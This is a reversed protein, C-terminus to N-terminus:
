ALAKLLEGWLAEEAAANAAADAADTDESGGSAAAVKAATAKAAVGARDRASTFADGYSAALGRAAGANALSVLCKLATERLDVAQGLAVVSNGDASGSPPPLSPLVLAALAPGCAAFYAGAKAAGDATPKPPAEGNDDVIVLACCLAHLFFAAKKQLRPDNGSELCKGLVEPGPLTANPGLDYSTAGSAAAEEVFVGQADFYFHPAPQAQAALESGASIAVATTGGATAERVSAGSFFAAENAAHNRVVCSLCHLAKVKLAPASEQALLVAKALPLVGLNLFADQAYPNNQAVTALVGFCAGRVSAPMAKALFPHLTELLPPVGGIQVLSKAFDIQECIDQLEEIADVLEDTKDAGIDASARAPTLADAKIQDVLEGARKVLDVLGEKMVMTLWDKDDQSMQKFESPGPSTGSRDAGEKM